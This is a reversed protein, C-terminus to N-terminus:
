IGTKEPSFHAVPQQFVGGQDADTAGKDDEGEPRSEVRKPEMMEALSNLREVNDVFVFSARMLIEPVLLEPGINGFKHLTNLFELVSRNAEWVIALKAKNVPHIDVDALDMFAHKQAEEARAAKLVALVDGPMEDIGAGAQQAAVGTAGNKTM